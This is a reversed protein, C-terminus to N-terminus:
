NKMFQELNSDWSVRTAKMIIKGNYLHIKADEKVDMWVNSNAVKIKFRFIYEGELPFHKRIDALKVDEVAINM